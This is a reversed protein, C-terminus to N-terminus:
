ADSAEKLGLEPEDIKTALKRYAKVGRTFDSEGIHGLNFYCDKSGFTCEGVVSDISRPCMLCIPRFVEGQYVFYARAGLMKKMLGSSDDSKRRKLATLYQPYVMKEVGKRKEKEKIRPRQKTFLVPVLAVYNKRTELIRVIAKETAKDKVAQERDSLRNFGRAAFQLKYEPSADSEKTRNKSETLISEVAEAFRKNIPLVFADPFIRPIDKEDDKHFFYVKDFPFVDGVFTRHVFLMTTMRM